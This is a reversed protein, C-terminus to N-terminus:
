GQPPAIMGNSTVSPDTVLTGTGGGIEAGLQFSAVTYNGLLLLSATGAKVDINPWRMALLECRRTGTEVALVIM